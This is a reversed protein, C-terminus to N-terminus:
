QRQAVARQHGVFRPLADPRESVLQAVLDMRQHRRVHATPALWLRPHRRRHDRQHIRLTHKVAPTVMRVRHQARHKRPGLCLCPRPAVLRPAKPQMFRPHRMRAEALHQPRPADVADHM